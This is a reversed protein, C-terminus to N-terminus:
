PDVGSWGARKLPGADEDNLTVIRDAPITLHLGSLTQLQSYAMGLPALLRVMPTVVKLGRPREADQRWLEFM